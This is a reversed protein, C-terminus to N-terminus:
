REKKKKKKETILIENENIFSISWPEDLRTLKKFGIKSYLCSTAALYILSFLLYLKM